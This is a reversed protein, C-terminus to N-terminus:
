RGQLSGRAAQRPKPASDAPPTPAAEPVPRRPDRTHTPRRLPRRARRRLRRGRTRLGSRVRSAAGRHRGAQTAKLYDPLYRAYLAESERRHAAPDASIQRRADNPIDSALLVDFNVPLDPRQFMEAMAAEIRLYEALALTARGKVIRDRSRGAVARLFDGKISDQFWTLRPCYAGVRPEDAHDRAIIELARAYARGGPDNPPNVSSLGLNAVWLLADATVPDRPFEEALAVFAPTHDKPLPSLKTIVEAQEEKTMAKSVAAQYAKLADDYKKVLAQYREAPNPKAAVAQAEPKPNPKSKAPEDAPHALIGSAAVLGGGLALLGGTVTAVAKLKTWFM